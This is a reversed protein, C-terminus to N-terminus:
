ESKTYISKYNYIITDYNPTLHYLIGVQMRYHTQTSDRPLFAFMASDNEVNLGNQIIIQSEESLNQIIYSNDYIKSYQDGELQTLVVFKPKGDLGNTKAVRSLFDNEIYLKGTIIENTRFTDKTMFFEPLVIENSKKWNKLDEKELSKSNTGCGVLILLVGAILIRM